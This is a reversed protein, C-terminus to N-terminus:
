VSFNKHALAKKMLEKLEIPEIVKVNAGWTYLHWCMEMLGGATFKVIVSGDKQRQMSQNPHFVYEEIADAVSASFQWVVDRPKEQFVGFSREAFARLSFEPNRIFVKDTLSIRRIQSLSFIRAEDPHRDPSMGVLYHQKGLLFGYPHLRRGSSRNKHRSHYAIYIEKNQKIASRITDIVEPKIVPRPGPRMALGEAELLAELDPELRRQVEGPVSAKLKRAVVELSNARAALNRQRLFKATAELDAIQEASFAGPTVVGTLPIRWRPRQEFDTIKEAQPYNRLVADRMRQATRRSVGFDGEIDTLSLGVRSGQMALALQLVRDTIEYRMFNLIVPFKGSLHGFTVARSALSGGSTSFYRSVLGQQYWGAKRPLTTGIDPHPWQAVLCARLDSLRSPPAPSNTKGTLLEPDM